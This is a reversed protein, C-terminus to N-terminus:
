GGNHNARRKKWEAVVNMQPAMLLSNSVEGQFSKGLSFSPLTTNYERVRAGQVVTDKFYFLSRMDDNDYICQITVKPKPEFNSTWNGADSVYTMVIPAEGDNRTRIHDITEAIKAAMGLKRLAIQKLRISEGAAVDKDVEWKKISSPNFQLLGALEDRSMGLISRIFRFEVGRLRFPRLCMAIAIKRELAQGHHYATCPGAVEDTYAEIGDRNSFFIDTLGALSYAAPYRAHTM